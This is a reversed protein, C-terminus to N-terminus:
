KPDNNNDKNVAELEEQSVDEGQAVRKMMARIRDVRSPSMDLIMAVGEMRGEHRSWCDISVYLALCLWWNWDGPDFGVLSLVLGLSCYLAVRTVLSM